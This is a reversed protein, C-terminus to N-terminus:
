VPNGFELYDTESLPLSSDLLSNLVDLFPSNLICARFLEPRLNLCAQAVMMAGASSGKAALLNPHTIRNAILFEACSIFDLMSNPKNYLKGEEHWQIGREGGGRVQADALIWGREMASTRGISFGQTMNMGYAGYGELLVRNRRNLQMNSSKKYYVNLPIEM